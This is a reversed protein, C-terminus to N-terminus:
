PIYVHVSEVQIRGLPYCKLSTHYCRLPTVNKGDTGNTADNSASMAYTRRQECGEALVGAEMEDEGSNVYSPFSTLMTGTSSITRTVVTRCVMLCEVQHTTMALM